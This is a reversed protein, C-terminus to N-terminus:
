EMKNKNELNNNKDEMLKGKNFQEMLPKRL